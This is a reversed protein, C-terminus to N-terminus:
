LKEEMIVWTLVRDNLQTMAEIMETGIIRIDTRKGQPSRYGGRNVLRKRFIGAEEVTNPNHFDFHVTIGNKTQDWREVYSRAKGM